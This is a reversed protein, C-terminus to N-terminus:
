ENSLEFLQLLEKGSGNSRTVKIFEAKSLAKWEDTVKYNHCFQRVTKEDRYLTTDNKLAKTLKQSFKKIARVRAEGQLNTGMGTEFFTYICPSVKGWFVTNSYEAFCYAPTFLLAMVSFICILLKM